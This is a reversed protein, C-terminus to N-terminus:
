GTWGNLQTCSPFLLSVFPQLYSTSFASERGHPPTTPFGYHATTTSTERHNEKWSNSRLTQIWSSVPHRSSLWQWHSINREPLICPVTRRFIKFLIDKFHQYTYCHAPLSKRCLHKPHTGQGWSLSFSLSCFQLHTFIYLKDMLQLVSNLVGIVVSDNVTAGYNTNYMLAGWLATERLLPFM